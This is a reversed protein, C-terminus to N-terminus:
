DGNKQGLMLLFGAAALASSVRIAKEAWLGVCFNGLVAGLVFVAIIGFYFLGRRAGDRERGLCFDCLSQTAARLNGICMTTAVGYGRVSRFSEVQIGCAFSTLSNAPLNLSQPLFSVAFLIVAEALVAWQRWHIRGRAPFRRRLVEAAAIGLTFAAVPCLYRLAASFEGSSLKVGILLLNGTQANAFVRGRGIYSYADMFGGSLTLLVALTLSESIQEARKM